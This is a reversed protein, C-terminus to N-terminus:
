LSLHSFTKKENAHAAMQASTSTADQPKAGRDFITSMLVTGLALALAAGAAVVLHVGLSVGEPGLLWDIALFAMFGCLTVVGFSHLRHEHVGERVRRMESDLRQRYISRHIDHVIQPTCPSCPDSAKASPGEAADSQSGAHLPMTMM